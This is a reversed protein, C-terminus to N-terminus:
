RAWCRNPDPNAATFDVGAVSAAGAYLLNGGALRVMMVQCGADGAQSKDSAATAVATYGVNDVGTLSVAYYESPSTAPLGLGNPPAGGTATNALPAYSANNSRWREQAQQVASLAVFADSRRSKRVSDIFSPIAIASLIAIIVVAIVLEILTFGGSRRPARSTASQSM